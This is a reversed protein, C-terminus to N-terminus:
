TWIWFRGSVLQADRPLICKSNMKESIFYSYFLLVQTTYNYFNSTAYLSGSVINVGPQETIIIQTMNLSHNVDGLLFCGEIGM